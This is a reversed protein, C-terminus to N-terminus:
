KAARQSFTAAKSQVRFLSTGSSFRMGNLVGTRLGTGAHLIALWRGSLERRVEKRWTGRRQRKDDAVEDSEDKEFTFV